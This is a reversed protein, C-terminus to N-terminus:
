CLGLAKGVPWGHKLRFQITARKVKVRETWAILPLTEGNYTIWHTSIRNRAQEKPTAWRCNSKEYNGNNNIREISCGKPAEGMDALFADFSNRWRECVTIGRAGYTKFSRVRHNTCRTIMGSWARYTPTTAKGKTHGHRTRHKSILESQWCGCSHTDGRRLAASWTVIIVGCDCKCKWKSGGVVSFNCKELVVLRGFRKGTLDILNM